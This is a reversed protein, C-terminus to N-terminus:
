EYYAIMKKARALMHDYTMIEINHFAANIKRLAQKKEEDWDISRGIIIRARPKLFPLGYTREINSRQEEIEYLYNTCQGVVKALEPSMYYNGPHGSDLNLVEKDPTKLEIVDQYGDVSTFCLDIRQQLAVQTIDERNLYETGFVWTNGKIWDKYDQERVSSELLACFENLSEKYQLHLTHKRLKEVLGPASNLDTILTKISATDPSELTTKLIHAIFDQQEYSIGSYDESIPIIAYNGSRRIGLGAYNDSLYDFLIRVENEGLSFKKAPELDEPWDAGTPKNFQFLTLTLADNAKHKHVIHWLKAVRKTRNGDHLIIPVIYGPKGEKNSFVKRLFNPM